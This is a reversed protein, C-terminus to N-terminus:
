PRAAILRRLEGTAVATAFDGLLNDHPDAAVHQFQESIYASLEMVAVGAADMQEQRLWDKSSKLQPTVGSPHAQRHGHRSRRHDARRDDNAPPQGDCGDVRHTRRPREDDWIHAATDAIFPEFARIRKAALQPLLAKRHVAHAPEDATALAQTPVVSNMRHAFATVTGGPQYMMTATLNSSFDDCRAVAENVAEWGSVAYFDSEGIRHVHGTQHM